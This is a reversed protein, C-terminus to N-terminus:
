RLRSVSVMRPALLFHWRRLGLSIHCSERQRRSGRWPLFILSVDGIWSCGSKYRWIANWMRSRPPRARQTHSRKSTTLKGSEKEEGGEKREGEEGEGGGGGGEERGEEWDQWKKNKSEKEKTKMIIVTGTEKEEDECWAHLPSPTPVKWAVPSHLWPSFLFALPSFCSPSTFHLSTQIKHWENDEVNLEVHLNCPLHLKIENKIMNITQPTVRRLSTPPNNQDWIRRRPHVLVMAIHTKNSGSVICNLKEKEREKKRIFRHRFVSEPFNGVWISWTQRHVTAM